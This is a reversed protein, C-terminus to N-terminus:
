GGGAEGPVGGPMLPPEGPEEGLLEGDCFVLSAGSKDCRLSFHRDTISM